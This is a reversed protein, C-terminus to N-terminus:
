VPVNIAPNKLSVAMIPSGPKSWGETGVACACRASLRRPPCRRVHLVPETGAGAGPVVAGDALGEADPEGGPDSRRHRGGAHAIRGTLTVASVASSRPRPSTSRVCTPSRQERCPPTWRVTIRSTASSIRRVNRRRGSDDLDHHRHDPHRQGDHRLGAAEVSKDGPDVEDAHVYELFACVGTTTGKFMHAFTNSDPNYTKQFTTGEIFSACAALAALRPRPVYSGYPSALDMRRAPQRGLVLLITQSGQSAATLVDRAYFQAVDTESMWTTKYGDGDAHIGQETDWIPMTTPCGGATM